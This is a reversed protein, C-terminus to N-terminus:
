PAVDVLDLKWVVAARRVGNWSWGGVYVAGEALAIATGWDDGYGGAANDFTCPGGGCFHPDLEGSPLVRWVALDYDGRESKVGGAIWYRGQDDLAMAAPQAYPDCAAEGPLTVAGDAGFDADLAGDAELRWVVLRGGTGNQAVALPTVGATTSFTGSVCGLISAKTDGVLIKYAMGTGGGLLPLTVWGGQGFGTVLGSNPDLKWAAPLFDADKVTGALWLNGEDDLTLDDAWDNQTGTAFTWIGDGDFGADPSGDDRVKWVAVDYTGGASMVGGALWTYGTATRLAHVYDNSGAGAWDAVVSPGGGYLAPDPTGDPRLAWIVADLDPAANLAVGAMRYGGATAEADFVTSLQTGGAPDASTYVGDGDFSVDPRGETDFKWAAALWDAEAQCDGSSSRCGRGALFVGSESM